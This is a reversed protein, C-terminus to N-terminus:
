IYSLPVPRTRSRKCQDGGGETVISWKSQTHSNKLKLSRDGETKEQEAEKKSAQGPSIDTDGHGKDVEGDGEEKENM